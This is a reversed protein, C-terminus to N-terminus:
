KGTSPYSTLMKQKTLISLSGITTNSQKLTPLHRQGTLLHVEFCPRAVSITNEAVYDFLQVNGNNDLAM